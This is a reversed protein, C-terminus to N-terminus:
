VATWGLNDKLDEFCKACVWQYDEGLKYDATVAYGEKLYDGGDGLSFTAGCASCHDHDWRESWQYYKKWRFAVGTLHTRVLDLRWDDESVMAGVITIVAERARGDM